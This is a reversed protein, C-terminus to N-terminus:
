LEPSTTQSVDSHCTFNCTTASHYDDCINTSQTFLDYFRRYTMQLGVVAAVAEKHNVSVVVASSATVVTSELDVPGDAHV